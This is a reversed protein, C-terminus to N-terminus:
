TLTYMLAILAPAIPNDSIVLGLGPFCQTM